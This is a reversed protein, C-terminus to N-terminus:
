SKQRRRGFWALAGFAGMAMPLAAPLPIPALVLSDVGGSGGFRLTITDGVGILSSMVSLQDTGGDVGNGVTGLVTGDKDLVSFMEEDDVFSFSTLRFPTGSVLTMIIDGGSADDNPAPFQGADSQLILVNGSIGNTGQGGLPQLDTDGNCDNPGGYAEPCTTDFVAVGNNAGTSSLSFTYGDETFSTLPITQGPSSDLGDFDIVAAGVASPVMLIAAFAAAKTSLRMFVGKNSSMDPRVSM